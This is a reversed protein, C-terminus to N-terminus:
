SGCPIEGVLRTGSFAGSEVYLRGGHSELRDALGRLGSGDADAGGAGDDEVEVVLVGDDRRALVSAKTAGAHKVVNALAESVVFYAAAEVDPALREISADVTVPLPMRAALAELAPELGGQTLIGPHLGHALERLEEVAVQLEDATAALLRELDPDRDDGLQRQASRLELALAVLRQQAGDHLDREIRRREEDAATV